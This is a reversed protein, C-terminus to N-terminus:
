WKREKSVLGKTVHYIVKGNKWDAFNLSITNIFLPADKVDLLQRFCESLLKGESITLVGLCSGLHKIELGLTVIVGWRISVYFSPCAEPLKMKEKEVILIVSFLVIVFPFIDFKVETSFAPAVVVLVIFVVVYCSVHHCLVVPDESGLHFLVHVTTFGFETSLELSFGVRSLVGITTAGVRSRVLGKWLCAASRRSRSGADETGVGGMHEGVMWVSFGLKGIALWEPCFDVSSLEHGGIAFFDADSKINSSGPVATQGIALVLMTALVLMSVVSEMNTGEATSLIMIGKGPDASVSFGSVKRFAEDGGVSAYGEKESKMM